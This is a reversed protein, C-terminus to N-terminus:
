GARRADKHRNLNPFACLKKLQSRGVASPRLGAVTRALDVAGCSASRTRCAQTIRVEYLTSRLEDQTDGRPHSALANGVHALQFSRDTLPKAAMSQSFQAM